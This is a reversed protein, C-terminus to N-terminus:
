HRVLAALVVERFGDPTNCDQDILPLVPPSDVVGIQLRTRCAKSEPFVLVDAVRCVDIGVLLALNSGVPSFYELSSIFSISPHLASELGVMIDRIVVHHRARGGGRRAENNGM